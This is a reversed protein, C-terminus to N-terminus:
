VRSDAFGLKAQKAEYAPLVWQDQSDRREASARGVKMALAAMQDPEDLHERSDTEVRDARLDM